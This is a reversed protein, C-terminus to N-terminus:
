ICKSKSMLSKRGQVRLVALDPPVLVRARDHPYYHVMHEPLNEPIDLDSIQSQIRSRRPPLPCALHENERRSRVMLLPYSHIKLPIKTCLRPDRTPHLSSQDQAEPPLTAMRAMPVTQRSIRNEVISIMEMLESQGRVSPPSSLVLRTQPVVMIKSSVSLRSPRAPMPISRPSTMGSDRRFAKEETANAVQALYPDPRGPSTPSQSYMQRPASLPSIPSMTGERPSTAPYPQRTDTPSASSASTRSDRRHDDNGREPYPVRSSRRSEGGPAQAIPSRVRADAYDDATNPHSPRTYGSPLAPRQDRPSTEGYQPTNKGSASPVVYDELQPMHVKPFRLGHKDSPSTPSQGYGRSPTDDRSGRSRTPGSPPPREETEYHVNRVGPSRSYGRGSEEYKGSPGSPPPRLRDSPYTTDVGLNAARTTSRPTPVQTTPTSRLPLDAYPNYPGAKPSLSLGSILNRTNRTRVSVDSIGSVHSKGDDDEHTDEDDEHHAEPVRPKHHRHKKPSTKPPARSPIDM